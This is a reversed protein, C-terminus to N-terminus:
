PKQPPVNPVEYLRGDETLVFLNQRPIRGRQLQGGALFTGPGIAFPQTKPGEPRLAAHITCDVYFAGFGRNLLTVGGGPGLLLLDPKGNGDCDLVACQVAEPAGADARFKPPWATGTLQVFPTAPIGDGAVAYRVVGEARVVMAHLQATEDWGASFRAAAAKGSDWLRRSVRTWPKGAAGPNQLQILEGTTLLVVIDAKRDGTVDAVASDLWGTDPPLDPVPETRVFRDGQRVMLNAGLLLDPLGDGNADGVATRAAKLDKLGWADTANAYDKDSNLFLRVGDSTGVLLDPRTDGNVDATELFTPKVGLNAVERTKGALCEPDLKDEMPSRGAKMAALLRVLSETRGPFARAGDYAQVVNLAPPAADPVGQALLWTDALHVIAVGQSETQVLFM